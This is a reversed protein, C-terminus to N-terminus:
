FLFLHPRLGVFTLTPNFRLSSNFLLTHPQLNAQRPDMLFLSTKCKSRNLTLCWFESRRELRILTAEMAAPVSPPPLGFPLITLM